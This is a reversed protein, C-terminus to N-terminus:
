RRKDILIGALELTRAFADLVKEPPIERIVKNEQTDMVKVMIRKTKEHVRIHMERDYTMIAKNVQAIVKEIVERSVPTSQQNSQEAVSAANQPKVSTDVTVTEMAPAPVAVPQAAAYQAPAPAAPIDGNISIVDM